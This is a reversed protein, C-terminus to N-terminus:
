WVEFTQSSNKNNSQTLFYILFTVTRKDLSRSPKSLNLYCSKCLKGKSSTLKKTMISFREEALYFVFLFDVWMMQMEGCCITSIKDFQNFFVVLYYFPQSIIIAFDIKMIFICCDGDTKSTDFVLVLLATLLNYFIIMTKGDKNHTIDDRSRFTIMKAGLM